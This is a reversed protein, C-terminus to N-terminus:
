MAKYVNFNKAKINVLVCTISYMNKNIIQNKLFNGTKKLNIQTNSNGYKQMPKPLNEKRHLFHTKNCVVLDRVNKFCRKHQFM